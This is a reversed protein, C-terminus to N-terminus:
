FNIIFVHIGWLKWTCHDLLRQAIFEFEETEVFTPKKLLDREMAGCKTRISRRILCLGIASSVLVFMLDHRDIGIRLPEQYIAVFWLTSHIRGFTISLLLCALTLRFAVAHWACNFHLILPMRMTISRHPHKEHWVSVFTQDM